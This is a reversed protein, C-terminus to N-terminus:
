LQPNFEVMVKCEMLPNCGLGKIKKSNIIIKSM